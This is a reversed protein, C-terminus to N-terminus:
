LERVDTECVEDGEEEWDVEIGRKGYPSVDWTITTTVRIDEILKDAKNEAEEENKARVTTKGIIRLSRIFTVEFEPM